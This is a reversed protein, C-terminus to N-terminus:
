SEHIPKFKVELDVTVGSLEVNEKSIATDRLIVYDFNDLFDPTEMFQLFSMADAYATFTLAIDVTGTNDIEFEDIMAAPVHQTLYENFWTYYIHSKADDKLFQKLLNNKVIFYKIEKDQNNTGDIFVQLSALQESLAGVEKNYYFYIGGIILMVISLIALSIYGWRSIQIMRDGLQSSINNSSLLNLRRKKM